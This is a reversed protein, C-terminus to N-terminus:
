KPDRERKKILFLFSRLELAASDYAHRSGFFFFFVVSACAYLHMKRGSFPYFYLLTFLHNVLAM